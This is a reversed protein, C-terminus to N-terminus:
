CIGMFATKFGLSGHLDSHDKATDRLDLNPHRQDCSANPLEMLSGLVSSFGSTLSAHDNSWRGHQGRQRKKKKTQAGKGCSGKSRGQTNGAEWVAVGTKSRGQM